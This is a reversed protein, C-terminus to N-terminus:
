KRVYIKDALVVFSDKGKKVKGHAVITQLEKLGFAEKADAMVPQGQEDVLKVTATSQPLVNIDCCYDWPTPCSDGEIESCPRLSTDVINFAAIGEVWPNTSGGIRGVLVVEQDNQADKVAASVNQAGEPESSLIYKATDIKASGAKEQMPSQGCGILVASVVCIAILHCNKFM